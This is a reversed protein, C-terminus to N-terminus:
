RWQQEGAAAAGGASGFGGPPAGTCVCVCVNLTRDPNVSNPTLTVQLRVLVCINSDTPPTKGEAAHVRDLGGWQAGSGM